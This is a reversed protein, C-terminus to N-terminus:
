EKNIEEKIIEVEKKTSSKKNIQKKQQTKGDNIRNKSQNQQTKGDNDKKIKKLNELLDRNDKSHSEFESDTVQLMIILGQLRLKRLSIPINDLEIYILQGPHIEMKKSFIGDNYIFELSKNYNVDRKNTIKFTNNLIKYKVM